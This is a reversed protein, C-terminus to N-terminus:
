KDTLRDTQNGTQDNGERVGKRDTQRGGDVGERRREMERSPSVTCLLVALECAGGLTIGSLPM